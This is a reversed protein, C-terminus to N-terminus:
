YTTFKATINEGDRVVYDGVGQELPTTDSLFQWYTRDKTSQGVGQISTVFPGWSSNEIKFSFKEPQEKAAEEMVSLLVSGKHLSITISDTFNNAVANTVTFQVRILTESTAPVTPPETMDLNDTDQSCQLKTVDFYTRDVLSPIVQSAAMPNSFTGNPIESLVKQITQTYNWDSTNYFTSTVTLAQVALGTSYINGIIGDSKKQNLIQKIIIKMTTDTTQKQDWTFQEKICTLAMALVAITDISVQSDDITDRFAPNSLLRYVLPYPIVAGQQCLALVGLGIQYFNTLPTSAIEVSDLEDNVKQSLLQVLNKRKLQLVKAPNECCASIAMVYLAVEGSTFKLGKQVRNVADDKLAKLLQKEKALSHNQALRLGILISPNPSSQNNISRVMSRLLSAILPQQDAPIPCLGVIQWSVMLITLTIVSIRNM